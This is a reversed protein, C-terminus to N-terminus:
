DNDHLGAGAGSERSEQTAPVYTRHALEELMRISVLSGSGRRAHVSCDTQLQEQAVSGVPAASASGNALLQLKVDAKEILCHESSLQSITSKTVEIGIAPIQIMLPYDLEVIFAAMIIPSAVATFNLITPFDSTSASLDSLFVGTVVPCLLNSHSCWNQPWDGSDCNPSLQRHDRNATQRLLVAFADLAPMRRSAMWGAARGAEQAMGWSFGAGRYAKLVLSEIEGIAFDPPSTM